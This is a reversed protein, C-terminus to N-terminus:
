VMYPRTTCYEVTTESNHGTEKPSIFWCLPFDTAEPAEKAGYHRNPEDPMVIAAVAPIAQMCPASAAAQATVVLVYTTM